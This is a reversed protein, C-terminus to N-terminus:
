ICFSFELEYFNKGRKQISMFSNRSKILRGPQESLQVLYNPGFNVWSSLSPIEFSIFLDKSNFLHGSFSVEDTARKYLNPDDDAEDDDADALEPKFMFVEKGSIQILLFM